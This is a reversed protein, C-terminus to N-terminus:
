NIVKSHLRKTQHFFCVDTLYPYDLSVLNWQICFECIGFEMLMLHSKEALNRMQIVHIVHKM